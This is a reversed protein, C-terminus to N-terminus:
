RYVGYEKAAEMFARLNEAKTETASAGGTLIYGGGPACTEILKRCCQQINRAKNHYFGTSRIASELEALPARAYDAATPYKRFLGRTVLNVRKDTCQASLITAILLELPQSFQLECHADPYAKRFATALRKM